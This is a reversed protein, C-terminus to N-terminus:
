FSDIFDGAFGIGFICLIKLCRLSHPLDTVNISEGGDAIYMGLEDFCSWPPVGRILKFVDEGDRFGQLLSSTM